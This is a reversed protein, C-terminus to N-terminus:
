AGHGGTREFPTWTRRANREHHQARTTKGTSPYQQCSKECHRRAWCRWEVKAIIEMSPINEPTVSFNLGKKLLAINADSLSRSSLNIVWNAYDHHWCKGCLSKKGSQSRVTSAGWYLDLLGGSWSESATQFAALRLQAYHKILNQAILRYILNHVLWM